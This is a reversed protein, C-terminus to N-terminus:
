SEEFDDADVDAHPELEENPESMVSPSSSQTDSSFREDRLHTFAKLLEADGKITNYLHKAKENVFKPDSAAANKWKTMNMTALSQEVRDIPMVELFVKEDDRYLDMVFRNIAVKKKDGVAKKPAGSKTTPKPRTAAKAEVTSLYEQKQLMERVSELIEKKFGVLFNEVRQLTASDAVMRDELQSLQATIAKIITESATKKDASM